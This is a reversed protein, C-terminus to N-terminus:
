KGKPPRGRRKVPESDKVQVPEPKEDDVPVWDTSPLRRAKTSAVAVVVGSARNKVRVFGM